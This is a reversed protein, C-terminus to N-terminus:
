IIALASNWRLPVHMASIGEASMQASMGVVFMQGHLCISVDRRYLLRVPSTDEGGGGSMYYDCIHQPLPMIVMKTAARLNNSCSWWQGPLQDPCNMSLYECVSSGKSLYKALYNSASRHVVQSDVSASCNVRRGLTNCLVRGWLNRIEEATLIFTTSNPLYCPSVYHIHLCPVGTSDYREGQIELVAVYSWTCGKRVFERKLEQFYSRVIYNINQNYLYISQADTYPCTLTYFGLRRGYRRQLVFASEKVFSRAKSSIGRLGYKRMKQNHCNLPTSLGLTPLSEERTLTERVIGKHADWHSRRFCVFKGRTAEYIKDKESVKDRPRYFTSVKGSPYLYGGFSRNDPMERSMLASTHSDVKISECWYRPLSM